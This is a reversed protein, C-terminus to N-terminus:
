VKLGDSKIFGLAGAVYILFKGIRMELPLLTSHSRLCACWGATPCLGVAPGWYAACEFKSM